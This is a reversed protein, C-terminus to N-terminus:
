FACAHGRWLEQLWVFNSTVERLPPRFPVVM